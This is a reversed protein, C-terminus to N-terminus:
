FLELADKGLFIVVDARWLSTDGSVQDNWGFYNRYLEGVVKGEDESLGGMMVQTTERSVEEGSRVAVVDLGVNTLFNAVDTALGAVKSENILAVTYQREGVGWDFVQKGLFQQLRGEQYDYGGEEGERIVGARLLEEKGVLKKQYQSFRLILLGMDFKSISSKSQGLVAWFLSAQLGSQGKQELYSMIPVKMFGQVKQRVFEGGQNDYGGLRYLDGVRYSGVSRSKIRLEPPYPIILVEREVPDFSVFSVEGEKGALVLNFRHESKILQSNTIARALAGLLVLVGV